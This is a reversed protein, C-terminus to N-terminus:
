NGAKYGEKIFGDEIPQERFAAIGRLWKIGSATLSVYADEEEWGITLVGLHVLMQMVKQFLSEKTEYFYHSLWPEVAQYVTETRIWGPHGLLTFWRVVMPLHPIPKRYLRLWFRLMQKGQDEKTKLKGSGTDTLCLYGEEDEIFYGQYFAYDYLFSFRDPYLHYCRGFGFRPGKHELPKEEIFFTKFLQKQQQKYMSGSATIRVIEKGLFDLFHYLDAVMQGSEDRYFSPPTELVNERRRYPEALIEMVQNRTDSPVHYLYQTQHSYGPFLWGRKLASVILTRPEGEEGRLAARGKAFLEEMTFSASQDLVVQELFHREAPPLNLIIEKMYNKKGMIQLLSCILDRKSHSVQSQCGYYRNMQKLHEIDAYTLWDAMRM